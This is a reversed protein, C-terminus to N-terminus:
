KNEKKKRRKEVKEKNLIIDIVRKMKPGTRLHFKCFHAQESRWTDTQGNTRTYCSWFPQISKQPIKYPGVPLKILNISM